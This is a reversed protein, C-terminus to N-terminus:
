TMALMTAALDVKAYFLGPARKRACRQAVSTSSLRTSSSKRLVVHGRGFLRPIQMSPHARTSSAGDFM